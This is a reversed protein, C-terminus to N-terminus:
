QNISQNISQNIIEDSQVLIVRVRARVSWMGHVLPRPDMYGNLM